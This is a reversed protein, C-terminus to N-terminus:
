IINSLFMASFIQFLSVHPLESMQKNHIALKCPLTVSIKREIGYRLFELIV